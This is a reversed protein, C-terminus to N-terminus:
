PVPEPTKPIPCRPVPDPLPDGTHSQPVETISAREAVSEELQSNMEPWPIPQVETSLAVPYNNQQAASVLARLIAVDLARRAIPLIM